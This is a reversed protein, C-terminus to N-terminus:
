TLIPSVADISLASFRASALLVQVRYDAIRPVARWGSVTLVLQVYRPLPRTGQKIVLGFRDELLHRLMLNATAATTGEPAKAVIDFVDLGVWGPGGSIAGESVGYAAEILFREMDDSYNRAKPPNDKQHGSCDELQAV